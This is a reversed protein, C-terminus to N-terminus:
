ATPFNEKRAIMVNPSEMIKKTNALFVRCVVPCDLLMQTGDWLVSMAHRQLPAVELVTSGWQVIQAHREVEEAPVFCAAFLV